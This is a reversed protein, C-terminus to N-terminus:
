IQLIVLHQVAHPLIEDASFLIASEFASASKADKGQLLSEYGERLVGEYNNM